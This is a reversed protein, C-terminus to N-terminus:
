RGVNVWHANNVSSKYISAYYNNTSNVFAYISDNVSGPSFLALAGISAGGVGPAINYGTKDYHITDHMTYNTGDFRYVQPSKVTDKVSTGIFMVNNNSTVASIHNGNNAINFFGANETFTVGDASSFVRLVSTNAYSNPSSNTNVLRSALLHSSDGGTYLKGKFSRLFNFNIGRAFGDTVTTNWGDQANLILSSLFLATCLLKKM